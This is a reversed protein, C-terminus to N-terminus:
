TCAHRGAEGGGGEARANFVSARDEKLMAPVETEWTCDEGYEAIQRGVMGVFLPLFGCLKGLEAMVAVRRGTRSVGGTDFLLDAAEDAALLGLPVHEAGDLLSQFRTTM